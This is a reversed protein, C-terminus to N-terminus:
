QQPTDGKLKDAGVAEVFQAWRQIDGAVERRGPIVASPNEVAVQYQRRPDGQGV